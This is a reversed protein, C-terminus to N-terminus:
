SALQDLVTAPQSSLIKTVQHKFKSIQLENLNGSPKLVEQLDALSAQLLEDVAVLGASTGVEAPSFIAADAGKQFGEDFVERTALGGQAFGTVHGMVFGVFLARIVPDVYQKNDDKAPSGNMGSIMLKEFLDQEANNVLVSQANTM